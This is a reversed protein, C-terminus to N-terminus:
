ISSRRGGGMPSPMPSSGASPFRYEGFVSFECDFWEVIGPVTWGGKSHKRAEQMKDVIVQPAVNIHLKACLSTCLFQINEGTISGRGQLGREAM